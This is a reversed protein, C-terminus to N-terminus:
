RKKKKKSRFLFPPQKQWCHLDLKRTVRNLDIEAQCVPCVVDMLRAVDTLLFSIPLRYFLVHVSAVPLGNPFGARGQQKEKKSRCACAAQRNQLDWFNNGYDLGQFGNLLYFILAGGWFPGECSHCTTDNFVFSHWKGSTAHQLQLYSPYFISWYLSSIQTILMERLASVWQFLLAPKYVSNSEPIHGEFRKQKLSKSLDRFYPALILCTCVQAQIYLGWM